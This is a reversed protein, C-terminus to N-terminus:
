RASRTGNVAHPEVFGRVLGFTASHIYEGARAYNITARDLELHM